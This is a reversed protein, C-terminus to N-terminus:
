RKILLACLLVFYHAVGVQVVLFTTTSLETHKTAALYILALLSQVQCDKSSILILVIGDSVKHLIYWQTYKRLVYELADKLLTRFLVEFNRILFLWM